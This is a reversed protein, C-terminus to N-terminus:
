SPWSARSTSSLSVMWRIMMSTIIGLISPMRAVKFIRSLRFMGTIMSDALLSSVSLIM